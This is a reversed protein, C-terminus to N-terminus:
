MLHTSFFALLTGSFSLGAAVLSTIGRQRRTLDKAGVAVSLMAIALVILVVAVELMRM